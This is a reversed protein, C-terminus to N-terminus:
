VSQMAQFSANDNRLFASKQCPVTFKFLLFHCNAPKEDNRTAQRQASCYQPSIKVDSLSFFLNFM